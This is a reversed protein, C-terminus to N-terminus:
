SEALGYRRILAGSNAERLHPMVNGWGPPGTANLQQARELIAILDLNIFGRESVLRRQSLDLSYDM